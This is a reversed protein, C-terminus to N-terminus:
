AMKRRLDRRRLREAFPIVARHGFAVQGPTAPFHARQDMEPLRRHSCSWEVGRIEPHEARRQRELERWDCRCPHWGCERCFYTSM